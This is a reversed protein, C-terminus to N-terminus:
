NDKKSFLDEPFLENSKVLKELDQKIKKNKDIDKQYNEVPVENLEKETLYINEIEEMDFIDSTLLQNPTLFKLEKELKKLRKVTIGKEKTRNVNLIVTKDPPAGLLPIPSHTSVIFQINPFTKTLKEVLERQWKPHLHLDFEDIFVIGALDKANKVKSQNKRLRLIMDGFMAIISKYGSALEDFIRWENKDTGKEHYVVTYDGKRENIKIKDIYPSLLDLLIGHVNEYLKHNDKKNFWLKLSGEIDLLKRDTKFLSDTKSTEDNSKNLRAPGYAAFNKFRKDEKHIRYSSNIQCEDGNKLEVHIEANSNLINRGDKNGFLGIVVAQLLSTKGFGNEGTLFIWQPDKIENKSENVAIDDLFLKNIGQFNDIFFKKITFPLENTREYFKYIDKLLAPVLKNNVTIFADEKKVNGVNYEEILKDPCNDYYFKPNSYGLKIMQVPPFIDPTDIHLGGFEGSEYTLLLNHNLLEKPFFVYNGRDSLNIFKIKKSETIFKELDKDAVEWSDQFELSELNKLKLLPTIKEIDNKNLNVYTLKKLKILNGPIQKIDNDQLNIATVFGNKDIKYENTDPYADDGKKLTIMLEKELQKIIELDTM